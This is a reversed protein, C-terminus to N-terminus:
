KEHNSELEKRKKHVLAATVIFPVTVVLLVLVYSFGIFTESSNIHYIVEDIRNLIGSLPIAIVFLPYLLFEVVTSLDGHGYMEVTSFTFFILFSCVTISSPVSFGKFFSYEKEKISYAAAFIVSAIFVLPFFVPLIGTDYLIVTDIIDSEGSMLFAIVWVLIGLLVGSFTHQKNMIKEAM